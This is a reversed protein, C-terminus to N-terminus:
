NWIIGDEIIEVGYLQFYGEIEEESLGLNLLSKKELEYQEKTLLMPFGV